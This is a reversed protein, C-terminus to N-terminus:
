RPVTIEDAIHNSVVRSNASVFTVSAICSSVYRFLGGSVRYFTWVNVLLSLGYAMGIYIITSNINTQNPLRELQQSVAMSHGLFAMLLFLFTGVFEGSAAVLHANWPNRENAPKPTGFGGMPKDFGHKEGM